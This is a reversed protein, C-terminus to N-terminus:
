RNKRSLYQKISIEDMNKKDEQEIAQTEKAKRTEIIKEFKKVEMHADSLKKRKREMETRAAQIEDQLLVIQQNLKDIYAAQVKLKELSVTSQLDSEYTDEATEKKKLKEYLRTGIKEFANMSQYYAQQAAKKENERVHLIKSIVITDAM